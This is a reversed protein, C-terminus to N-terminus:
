NGKAITIKGAKAQATQRFPAPQPPLQKLRFYAGLLDSDTPKDIGASKFDAVLADRTSGPIDSAQMTLLRQSTNGTEFGLFSTRFSVSKAFLGDIHKEVEADTMQKGTVKQQALMSDTVFKKIAGVRAAEDSGDKPTPDIGLSQFRDRLATNMASM